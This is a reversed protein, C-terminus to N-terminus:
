LSEYDHDRGGAREVACGSAWGGQRWFGSGALHRMIMDDCLLLREQGAIAAPTVADGSSFGLLAEGVESVNDPIVVPEIKCAEEIAVIRSKILALQDAREEPTMIQRFFEGDQYTISMSEEDGVDVPEDLMAHLCGLENAPIALPGLRDELIPFVGLRAAYWATLADLVAGSRDNDEISNLPRKASTQQGSM